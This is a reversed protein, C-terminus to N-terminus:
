QEKGKEKEFTQGDVSEGTDARGNAVDERGGIQSTAAQGDTTEASAVATGPDDPDFPQLDGALNGIYENGDEDVSVLISGEYKKEVITVMEGEVTRAPYHFLEDEDQIVEGTPAEKM